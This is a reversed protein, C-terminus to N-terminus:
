AQEADIKREDFGADIRGGFGGYGDDDGEIGNRRNEIEVYGIGSHVMAGGALIRDIENVLERM